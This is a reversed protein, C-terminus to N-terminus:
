IKWPSITSLFCYPIVLFISTQRSWSEKKGHQHSVFLSSPQYSSSLMGMLEWNIWQAEKVSMWKRKTGNYDVTSYFQAWTRMQWLFHHLGAMLIKWASPFLFIWSVSKCCFGSRTSQLLSISFNTHFSLTFSSFFSVFYRKFLKGSFSDPHCLLNDLTMTAPFFLKWLLHKLFFYLQGAINVSSISFLFSIINWITQKKGTKM